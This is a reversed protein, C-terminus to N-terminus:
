ENAIADSIDKRLQEVEQKIKEEAGQSLGDFKKELDGLQTKLAEIEPNVTEQSQAETPADQPTQPANPDSQQPQDKPLSQEHLNTMFALSSLVQNQDLGQMNDQSTTNDM